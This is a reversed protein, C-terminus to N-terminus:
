IHSLNPYAPIEGLLFRGLLRAQMEHATKM